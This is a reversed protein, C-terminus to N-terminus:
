RYLWLLRPRKGPPPPPAPPYSIGKGLQSRSRTQKRTSHSMSDNPSSPSQKIGLISSSHANPAVRTSKSRRSKNKSLPYTPSPPSEKFTSINLPPSTKEKLTPLSSSFYIKSLLTPSTFMKMPPQMSLLAQIFETMGSTSDMSEGSLVAKVVENFNSGKVPRDNVVLAGTENKRLLKPYKAILSKLVRYDTIFKPDLESEIPDSINSSNSNTNSQKPEQKTIDKQEITSPKVHGLPGVVSKITNFRQQAQNILAAKEEDSLKSNLLIEDIQEQARAMASLNPDYEKIQRQRLRELEAAELLVMKRLDTM